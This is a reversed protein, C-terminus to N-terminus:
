EIIFSFVFWRIGEIDLHNTPEDLLLVDPKCFLACALAVRMKAFVFSLDVFSLICSLVYEYLM